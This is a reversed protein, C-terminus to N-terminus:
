FVGRCDDALYVTLREVEKAGAPLEEFKLGPYELSKKWSQIISSFYQSAQKNAEYVILEYAEGRDGGFRTIMQWEGKRKYSTNTHDSQPYYKGDSPKLVVWIDKKFDEPYVGMTLIRCKVSDGALPSIVQIRKVPYEISSQNGQIALEMQGQPNTAGYFNGGYIILLTGIAGIPIRLRSNVLNVSAWSDIIAILIFISGLIIIVLEASM